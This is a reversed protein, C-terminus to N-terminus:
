SLFFFQDRNSRVCSRYHSEAKAANIVPRTILHYYVIHHTLLFIPLSKRGGIPRSDGSGAMRTQLNKLVSSDSYTAVRM